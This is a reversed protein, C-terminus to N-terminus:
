RALTELISAAVQSIRKPDRHIDDVISAITTTGPLGAWAAMQEPTSDLYAMRWSGFAREDIRSEHFVKVETHRTDRGLSAMLGVLNEKEGELVQLFVGDVYILVGTVGRRENGERADVLIQELDELTMPQTARSSYTIQYLM